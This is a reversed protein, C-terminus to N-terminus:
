GLTRHWNPHVVDLLFITRLVSDLADCASCLPALNRRLYDSLPPVQNTFPLTKRMRTRVWQKLPGSYYFTNKPRPPFELFFVGCLLTLKFVMGRGSFLSDTAKSM